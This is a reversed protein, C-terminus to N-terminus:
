CFLNLLFTQMCSLTIYMHLNHTSDGTDAAVLLVDRVLKAARRVDEDLEKEVQKEEDLALTVNFLARMLDVMVACEAKTLTVRDADGGSERRSVADSLLMEGLQIITSLGNLKFM